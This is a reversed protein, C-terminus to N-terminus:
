SRGGGLYRLLSCDGHWGNLEAPLAFDLLGGDLAPFGATVGGLPPQRKAMGHTAANGDRLVSAAIAADVQNLWSGDDSASRM